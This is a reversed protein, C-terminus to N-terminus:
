ADINQFLDDWANMGHQAWTSYFEKVADAKGEEVYHEWDADIALLVDQLSYAVGAFTADAVTKGTNETDGMVYGIGDIELYANAYIKMEGRRCNRDAKNSTKMINFVSGSTAVVGSEFPTSAVTYCDTSETLFDAGPLNRLSLAVGYTKVKESLVPDCNYVAQYYLGAASTRLTVTKVTADLRHFGYAGQNESLALYRYGHEGGTVDEQVTVTDAVTVAACAEAQFTDNSRDMGWLIGNGAVTTNKGNFDICVTKGEPLEFVSDALLVRIYSDAQEQQKKIAEANNRAWIKTGDATYLCVPAIVLKDDAGYIKPMEVAEYQLNGSFDGTSVGNQVIDGYGYPASFAVSASGTWDAGVKLAATDYIYLNDGVDATGGLIDGGYLNFAANKYVFVNGGQKATGGTVTGGYMNFIAKKTASQGYLYVNGGCATWDSTASTITDAHYPYGKGGRLTGGYLNVTGMDAAINTGFTSEMEVGDYINVTAGVNHVSLTAYRPDTLSQPKNLTATEASTFKGGYLNITGGSNIYINGFNTTANSKGLANLSGEGMINLTGSGGWHIRGTYNITMGNLHLCVNTSGNVQLWNYVTSNVTGNTYETPDWYFHQNGSFNPASGITTGPFHRSSGGLKTWGDIEGCAPCYNRTFDIAAAERQIRSATYLYVPALVLKGDQGYIGLGEEAEYRLAGTFDGTSVGNQVTDGKGYRTPFDVSASGAWDVGVKFAAADHIYLNDGADATGGLIDGGYLNFAANKYVFVNGGQKATGGTVTGGYMNFIAQKTESQGYLYVNGGCATWDSTTSTITDAHYPYGKGGRLTGGYLNVTGMDAAINTGFTSELEVGNFINVTASANHVSLTAFRADTLSQPKNLTVTEASTLKGGYLNVTSGGNIYLNGLNTSANSKGLANLSGEGMINLTGNGVWQIRGNYNHTTGNLHLCVNTSGTVQLWNYGTHSVAGNTHETPDWYFHQNGSFNPASGINSGPQNRVDGGLKTWGDIEGCAPCYNETFDLEAAERQIRAATAIKEQNSISVPDKTPDATWGMLESVGDILMKAATIQGEQDPHDGRGRTNGNLHLYHVKEDKQAYAEVAAQLWAERETLMMGYVWLIEADPNNKRVKDLLTAVDAMYTAETFSTNKRGAIADNTGLNIVILEPKWSFDYNGLDEHMSIKEYISGISDSPSISQSFKWGGNAISYYDADFADATMNAYTFYSHTGGFGDAYQYIGTGATISDGLFEMRHTAPQVKELTGTYTVGHIYYIEKKAEPGKSIKVTHHGAALDKAVTVTQRGPELEFYHMAGDIEVFLNHYEVTKEEVTVDLLIDGELQGRLTFNSASVEMMVADNYKEMRGVPNCLALIDEPGATQEQVGAAAASVPLAVTLVIVATMLLSLMKRFTQKM